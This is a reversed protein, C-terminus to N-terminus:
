DHDAAMGALEALLRVRQAQYDAQQINGAAHADDLDAIRQMLQRRADGDGDARSKEGGSARRGVWLGGTVLVVLAALGGLYLGLASRNHMRIVLQDGAAYDTGTLIEFDELEPADSATVVMSEVTIRMRSEESVIQVQSTAYILPLNLTYDGDYPLVYTMVASHVRQGPLVAATDVVGEATLIYRQGLEGDEFALAFAEIPVPLL